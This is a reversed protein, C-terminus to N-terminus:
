SKLIDNVVKETTNWCEEALESDKAPGSEEDPSLIGFPVIFGGGYKDKEAWIESATAAYLPTIAGQFPTITGDLMQVQDGVFVVAGSTKVSGPHVSLSVGAIEKTEFEKQLRKAFLINALKSYGYRLYNFQMGNSGGFDNNFANISNFRPTGPVDKHSISSVTVVRVGPHRAATRQLIPLLATTLLFPALHNVSMSVSIGHKDFDLPRPLAAANNVLIDLREEKNVLEEASAKLQKLDAFDAVFPALNKDLVSPSVKKVEAIAGEAKDKNRAGFYVKAGKLALQHAINWGIGDPTNAGSVLAVKGTLDPILKLDWEQSKISSTM